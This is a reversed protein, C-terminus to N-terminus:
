FTNFEQIPTYRFHFKETDTTYGRQIWETDMTYGNRITQETNTYRFTFMINRSILISLTPYRGSNELIFLAVYKLFQLNNNFEFITNYSNHM